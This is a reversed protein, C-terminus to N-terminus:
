LYEQMMKKVSSTKYNSSTNQAVRWQEKNQTPYRSLPSLNNLADAGYCSRYQLPFFGSKPPALIEMWGVTESRITTTNERVLTM